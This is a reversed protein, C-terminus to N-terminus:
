KSTVNKNNSNTSCLTLLLICLFNDLMFLVPGITPPINPPNGCHPKLAIADFKYVPPIIVLPVSIAINKDVLSSISGIINPSFTLISNTNLM